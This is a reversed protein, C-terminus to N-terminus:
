SGEVRGSIWAVVLPQRPADTFLWFGRKFVGSKGPRRFLVRIQVSQGPPISVPLDVTSLCSCDTTGGYIRVSSAGRNHLTLLLEQGNGPPGNGVDTQSPAATITEGRLQALVAEPDHGLVSLGVWGALGLSALAGVVWAARLWFQLQGRWDAAKPVAVVLLFLVTADLGFSIWPSVPIAGFCGCSTHGQWGLWASAVAFGAFAMTATAWASTRLWGGLLWLGLMLELGALLFEM